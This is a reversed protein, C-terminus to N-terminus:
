DGRRTGIAGRAGVLLEFVQDPRVFALGVEKPAFRFPSFRADDARTRLPGADLAFDFAAITKAWAQDAALIIQSLGPADQEQFFVQYGDGNLGRGWDNFNMKALSQPSRSADLYLPKCVHTIFALYAKDFSRKVLEFAKGSDGLRVVLVRYASLILACMGLVTFSSLGPLARYNANFLAQASGCVQDAIHQHDSHFALDLEVNLHHLFSAGWASATSTKFAAKVGYLALSHSPALVSM